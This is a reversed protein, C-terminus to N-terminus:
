FEIQVWGPNQVMNPNEQVEILPIPLSYRFDNPAITIEYTEGFFELTRSHTIDAYRKLDIWRYENQALFEVRREKRIEMFLDDGSLGSASTNNRFSKFRDLVTIASAEDGLKYHAEALILYAEEPQFLKIVNYKSRTPFDGGLALGKLMLSQRIDETSMLMPPILPDLSINIPAVTYGYNVFYHYNNGYVYGIGGSMGERMTFAPYDTVPYDRSAKFESTTQPIVDDVGVIAAEAHIKANAYDETTKAPSEAKYWYVQALIHNIRRKSFFINYDEQPETRNAMELAANLDSLIVEYVEEHSKRPPHVGVVEGGTNLYVPIGMSGDNMPAFYQLLKFFYYARHTLMEGEVRDMEAQDGEISEMETLLANLFGISKYYGLWIQDPANFENFLFLNAYTKEIDDRNYISHIGATKDLYTSMSATADINDSYAEFMVRANTPILGKLVPISAGTASIFGGTNSSLEYLYGALTSKADEVSSITNKNKPPLDLYDTCATSFVALVILSILYKYINKM